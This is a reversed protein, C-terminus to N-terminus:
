VKFKVCDSVPPLIMLNCVTKLIEDQTLNAISQEGNNSSVTLTPQTSNSVVEALILQSSEKNALAELYNTINLCAMCSLSYSFRIVTMGQQILAAKVDPSLDYDVIPSQPIQLNKPKNNTVGFSFAQLLGATLSSGLMIAIMVLAAIASKKM